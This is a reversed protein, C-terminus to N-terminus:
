LNYYIKFLNYESSIIYKDAFIILVKLITKSDISRYKLIMAFRIIKSGNLGFCFHNKLM